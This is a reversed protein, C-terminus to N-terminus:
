PKPDNMNLHPYRGKKYKLYHDLGIIATKYATEVGILGRGGDKRPLSLREVNIIIIIIIVIIIIIIIIILASVDNTSELDARM